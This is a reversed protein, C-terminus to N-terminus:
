PCLNLLSVQEMKMGMLRSIEGKKKDDLESLMADYQTLCDKVAAQADQDICACNPLPSSPASPAHLDSYTM